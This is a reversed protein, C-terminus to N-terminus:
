RIPCFRLLDSFSRLLVSSRISLPLFLKILLSGLKSSSFIVKLLCRPILFFVMCNYQHSAALCWTFDVIDKLRKLGVAQWVKQESINEPNLQMLILSDNFFRRLVRIFVQANRLFIIRFDFSFSFFYIRFSSICILGWESFIMDLILQILTVEFSGSLVLRLEKCASTSDVTLPFRAFGILLNQVTMLSFQTVCRFVAM